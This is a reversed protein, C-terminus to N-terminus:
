KKGKGKAAEGAQKKELALREDAHRMAQDGQDLQQQKAQSDLPADPHLTEKLGGEESHYKDVADLIKRTEDVSYGMVYQLFYEPPMITDGGAQLYSAIAQAIQVAVDAKDKASPSHLDPWDVNIAPEEENDMTDGVDDVKSPDTTPTDGPNGPANATLKKKKDGPQATDDTEDKPKVKQLPPLIGMDILRNIFPLIVLPTLYKTQRNAVRENWASVDQDSALKAEESGMFIRWPVGLSICIAKLHTIFHPGPDAVQPQLSKATVGTLALYRQLGQSYREFEQRISETDLSAQNQLEPNVEFSFGPFGGKWFMEGSASLVKRLDYLRNWVPKMRPEGFVESTERNDALHVIRTWHVKTQQSAPQPSQSSNTQEIFFINYSEPQGYRPNTLDTCYSAVQCCKEDFTRLFLLKHGAPEATGDPEIGAVAQDLAAGDDIGLLIVGFTGIGSLTDARQLINFINFQKALKKWAAEFPTDTDPDEDEYIEPDKKWCEEPYVSVVRKAIGEREWMLRCENASVTESYGCEGNIDKNKDLSAKVMRDLLQFRMTMAHLTLRENQTIPEASADM